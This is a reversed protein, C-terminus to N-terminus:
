PGSRHRATITASLKRVKSTQIKTPRAIQHHGVANEVAELVQFIAQGAVQARARRERCRGGLFRQGRYITAGPRGQGRSAALQFPCAGLRAGRAWQDSRRGRGPRTEVVSGLHLFEGAKLSRGRAVLANALWTLAELPHGLIDGGRGTGVEAGNITMRGRVGALDLDRGARGARGPRLGYQLLRRRDLDTRRADPLEYRDDVVEIAAMCAGVAAGVAHRDYPARAAASGAGPEGRDRMRGRCAPFGRPPVGGGPAARESRVRRRCLSQPDAPLAADGAHYLRDQSRRARRLRRRYARRTACGRCLTPRRRTWRGAIKRCAISAGGRSVHPASCIPPARSRGPTM